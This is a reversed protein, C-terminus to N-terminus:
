PTKIPRYPDQLDTLMNAPAMVMGSGKKRDAMPVARQLLLDRLQPAAPDNPDTFSGVMVKSSTRDHYVYPQFGSKQIEPDRAIAEALKEADDHATMLPSKKFWSPDLLKPDKENPNFVTYSGFEAVQITYRGPCNFISRPGHNMEAVLTDKHGRAGRGPYLNQTPVYPNTTRVASALGGRWNYISPIDNLCKPKIKWVRHLLDLSGQLTKENGVLVAAEDYSRVKEPETLEAKRVYEAAMPPVNRINSRGPFDKTRLIFAPLGYDKRLEKVLALAYREADPGRFTRALVMFPGDDKTLLYPEVPENPLAITAPKLEDAPTPTPLVSSAPFVKSDTKNSSDASAGAVNLPDATTNPKPKNGFIPSSQGPRPGEQAFATCTVLLSGVSILAMSARM